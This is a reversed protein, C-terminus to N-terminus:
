EKCRYMNVPRGIARYTLKTEVRGIEALYNLYKRLSVRSIGVIQALQQTTAFENVQQLQEGVLQLTERELGKPLESQEAVSKTLIGHDIERQNLLDNQELLRIRERYTVLATQLRECSFPKVVYDVVGYRLAKEISASSRAATVMIVDVNRGMSRVQKLFEMGGLKPMFLDLLILRAQGTRLFRLAEDGNAVLGAVRFGTVQQLYLRNLDAVLPDDEVILVDIM